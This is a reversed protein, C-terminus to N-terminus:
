YDRKWSIGAKTGGQETRLELMARPTIEWQLVFATSGQKMGQQVGAYLGEVLYKGAEVSSGAAMDGDNAGSASNLRLADMGLAGRLSGLADRGGGAGFGALQAVAAALRLNELRGLESTNKGFLIQALIEDRPLEPESSLALKLRRATGTIRIRAMLSPSKDVLAIDLLPNDAAGGGFTIGGRELTFSKGLFALSGRVADIQGAILPRGPTGTVRMDARWESSLGYGEVLFRGPILLRVDLLGKDQKADARPAAASTQGSNNESDGRSGSESVPLTVISAGVDLNELLVAGQNVTIRGRVEPADVAGTVAAEGSFEIRADRRRLPRLRHIVAKVDARSGDLLSYGTVSATGGRGDAVRLSVRARGPQGGRGQDLDLRAAVEQLLIGLALNEYRGKDLTAFGRAEPAKLTGGMDVSLVLQGAMRQDAVPLLSWLPAVAGKWRVSGRLPRELAPRPLGDPVFLLPIRAQVRCEAGGLAQIAAPDMDLRVALAGNNGGERELTGTLSLDVPKLGSGPLRLGRVTARVHGEPRDPAGTLRAHLSATGQPLERVLARWPTLDLNDLDLQADLRTTDLVARGRLRGSPLLAAELGALELSAPGYRLVTGASLRFSAALRSDAKPASLSAELQRVEVSGPQWRAQVRAALAGAVDLTVDLPGALAGQARLGAKLRASGLGAQGLDVRARLRQAGFADELHIEGDLGRLVVNEAGPRRYELAPVRWVLLASQRAAAGPTDAANEADARLKLNLNAGGERADPLRVGPLGAGSLVASLANGNTVRVDLRGDCLPPFPQAAGGSLLVALEGSANVGAITAKLDRLGARLGRGDPGHGAAAFLTGAIEAAQGDFHARLSVGVSMEDAHRLAEKGSDPADPPSQVTNHMPDPFFVKRWYLPTAEVRAEIRSLAKGAWAADTCDAGFLIEPSELPGRATLRVHLPAQLAGSKEAAPSIGPAADVRAAVAMDLMGSHWFSGGAGSQWLMHADAALPGAELRFDRLAASASEAPGSAAPVDLSGHLRGSLRAGAQPLFAQVSAPSSAHDTLAAGRAVAELAVDAHARIREQEESGRATARVEAEIGGCVAGALRLPQAEAGSVGVHLQAELGSRDAVLRLDLRALATGSADEGLLSRPFRADTVQAQEVQVSPLWGPLGRVARAIDALLIRLDDGTFPPSAQGASPPTLPLRLLEARNVRVAKLRFIAPLARWDWELRIDPLRLWMGQADFFELGAVIGFPLPGSLHTIRVGTALAEAADAREEPAALAANIREALWGQVGEQRLAGLVLVVLIVPVLVLAALARRAFIRARSRRGSRAAASDPSPTGQGPPDSLLPPRFASM